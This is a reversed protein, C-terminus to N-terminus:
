REKRTCTEWEGQRHTHTGICSKLQIRDNKLELITEVWKCYICLGKRNMAIRNPEAIEGSGQAWAKARNNWIEAYIITMKCIEMNWMQWITWACVNKSAVTEISHSRVHSIFCRLPLWCFFVVFATLAGGSQVFRFYVLKLKLRFYNLEIRLRKNHRGSGCGTVHKRYKQLRNSTKQTYTHTRNEVAAWGLYESQGWWVSHTRSNLSNAWRCRWNYLKQYVCFSEMDIHTHQMISRNITTWTHAFAFLDLNFSIYLFFFSM